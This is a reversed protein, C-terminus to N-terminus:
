WSSTSDCRFRLANPSWGFPLCNVKYVYQCEVWWIAGHPRAGDATNAEHSVAQTALHQGSTGPYGCFICRLRGSRPSSKGDWARKRVDMRQPFTIM